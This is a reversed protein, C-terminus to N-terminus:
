KIEVMKSKHYTSNYPEQGSKPTKAPILDANITSNTRSILKYEESSDRTLARVTLLGLVCLVMFLCVM